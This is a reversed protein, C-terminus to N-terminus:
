CSDHVFNTVNNCRWVHVDRVKIMKSDRIEGQRESIGKRGGHGGELKM